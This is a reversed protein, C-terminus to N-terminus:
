SPNAIYSVGSDLHFAAFIPGRWSMTPRSAAAIRLSPRVKPSDLWRMSCQHNMFPPMFNSESQLAPLQSCTLPSAISPVRGHFTKPSPGVATTSPAKASVFRWGNVAASKRKV